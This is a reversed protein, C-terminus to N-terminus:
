AIRPNPLYNDRRFEAFPDIHLAERAVQNSSDCLIKPCGEFPDGHRMVIRLVGVHMDYNTADPVVPLTKKEVPFVQLMADAVDGGVKARALKSIPSSTIGCLRCPALDALVPECRQVPRYKAHRFALRLHRVGAAGCDDLIGSFSVNEGAQSDQPPHSECFQSSRINPMHAPIEFVNQPCHLTRGIPLLSQRRV